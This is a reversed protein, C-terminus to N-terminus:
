HGDKGWRSDTQKCLSALCLWVFVLSLLPSLELSSPSLFGFLSVSLSCPCWAKAGPRSTQEVSHILLEADKRVSLTQKRKTLCMTRYYTVMVFATHNLILQDSLKERPSLRGCRGTPFLSLGQLEAGSNSRDVREARQVLHHTRCLWVQLDLVGILGEWHPSWGYLFRSLLEQPGAERRFGM